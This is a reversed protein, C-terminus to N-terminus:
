KNNKDRLGYVLIFKYDIMKDFFGLRDEKTLKMRFEDKKIDVLLTDGTKVNSIFKDILAASYASGIVQFDFDPYQQLKIKLSKSGKSGTLIEIKSVIKQKLTTIEIQKIETLNKYSNSALFLFFLGVVICILGLQKSNNVQWNDQRELDRKIGKTIAKKIAPYNTYISSLIVYKSKSTYITLDSWIIHKNEKKIETWTVIDSIYITRKKFGLISKIV